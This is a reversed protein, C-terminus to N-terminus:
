SPGFQAGRALIKKDRPLREPCGVFKGSSREAATDAVIHAIHPLVHTVRQEDVIGARRREDTSDRQAVDPAAHRLRACKAIPYPGCVRPPTKHGRCNARNDWKDKIRQLKM